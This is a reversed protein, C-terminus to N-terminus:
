IIVDQNRINRKINCSLTCLDNNRPVSIKLGTNKFLEQIDKIYNEETIKYNLKENYEFM